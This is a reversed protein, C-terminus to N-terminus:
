THIGTGRVSRHDQGKTVYQFAHEGDDSLGSAPVAGMNAEPYKTLNKDGLM